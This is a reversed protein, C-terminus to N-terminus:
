KASRLATSFLLAIQVISLLTGVPLYWLTLGSCVLLAPRGASIGAFYCVGSLLWAVGLIVHLWKMVASRPELGFKSVVSSWPGLKGDASTVYDGKTLARIGDFTLWGGVVIAIIVVVIRMRATESISGQDVDAPLAVHFIKLNLRLPADRTFTRGRAASGIEFSRRYRM